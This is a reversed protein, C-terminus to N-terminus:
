ADHHKHNFDSMAGSKNNGAEISDERFIQICLEYRFLGALSAEVQATKKLFELFRNGEGNSPM